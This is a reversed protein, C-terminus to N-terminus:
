STNEQKLRWLVPRGITPARGIPDAITRLIRWVSHRHRQPIREGFVRRKVYCADYVESSTLLPRGAFARRIQRQLRGRGANPAHPRLRLNPYNEWKAPPTRMDSSDSRPTPKKLVKLAKRSYIINNGRLSGRRPGRRLHELPEVHEGAGRIV